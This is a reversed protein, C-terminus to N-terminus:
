DMDMLHYYDSNTIMRADDSTIGLEEIVRLTHTCHVNLSLIGTYTTSKAANSDLTSYATSFSSAYSGGFLGQMMTKHDTEKPLLDYIDQFGNESYLYLNLTNYYRDRDTLAPENLSLCLHGEQADKQYAEWIKNASEEPLTVTKSNGDSDYLDISGGRVSTEKYNKCLYYELYWTPDDQINALIATPSTDDTLLAKNVPITYYRSVSSGDKLYYSISVSTVTYEDSDGSAASGTTVSDNTTVNSLLGDNESGADVSSSYSEDQEYYDKWLKSNYRYPLYDKKHQIIGKHLAIIQRITDEDDTVIDSSDPNNGTIQVAAIQEQKPIYEEIKFWDAKFGTLGVMMIAICIIFEPIQKKRFVKFSKSLLMEALYFFIFTFLATAALLLKFYSESGSSIIEAVITGLCLGGFLAVAWRFVPVLWPVAVIDGVTELQRRKYLTYCLILLALAVICYILLTLKGQFVIQSTNAPIEASISSDLRFLPTLYSLLSDTNTYFFGNDNYLSMGYCVEGIIINLFYRACQFAFAAIIFFVFVGGLHGSLMCCFVSLTYLFFTMGLVFLLWTFLYEVHTINRVICVIVSLLFAIIQPIVMFLIGSIYNTFFLERRKLPLAHMTYCSQSNYLYSFVVAASLLSFICIPLVALGSHIVDALCNLTTFSDSAYLTVQLAQKFLTVPMQFILILLYFIWIPWFRMLNKKFLVINFFSTKSGM